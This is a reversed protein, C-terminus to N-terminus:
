FSKTIYQYVEKGCNKIDPISFSEGSISHSWESLQFIKNEYVMHSGNAIIKRFYDQLIEKKIQFTKKIVGEKNIYYFYGEQDSQIFYGSQTGSAYRISEEILKKKSVSYEDQLNLIHMDLGQNRVFFIKGDQVFTDVVDMAGASQYDYLINDSIVKIEELNRNMVIIKWDGWYFFISDQYCIMAKIWSEACQAKKVSLRLTGLDLKGLCTNGMEWLEDGAGFYLANNGDWASAAIAWNVGSVAFFSKCMRFVNESKAVGYNNLDIKLIYPYRGPVLYVINGVAFGQFFKADSQYVDDSEPLKIKRFVEKDIYFILIEEESYPVLVLQKKHRIIASYSGMCPLEYMSVIEDSDLNYKCLVGGSDPFFWLFKGDEAFCRMRMKLKKLQNM